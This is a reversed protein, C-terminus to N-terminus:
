ASRARGRTLFRSTSRWNSDSDRVRRRYVRVEADLEYAPGSASEAAASAAPNTRAAHASFRDAVARKSALRAIANPAAQREWVLTASTM